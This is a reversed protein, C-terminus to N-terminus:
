LTEWIVMNGWNGKNWCSQILTELMGVEMECEGMEERMRGMGERVRRFEEWERRIAEVSVITLARTGELRQKGKSEGPDFDGINESSRSGHVGDTVYMIGEERKM